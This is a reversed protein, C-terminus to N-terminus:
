ALAMGPLPTMRGDRKWNGLPMRPSSLCVGAEPGGVACWAGPYLFFSFFQSSRLDAATGRRTATWRLPLGLVPDRPHLSRDRSRAVSM